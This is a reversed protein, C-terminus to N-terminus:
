ESRAAALMANWTGMLSSEGDWAEQMAETPEIPVLQYGEPVSPAPHLYLPKTYNEAKCVSPRQMSSHFEWREYQRLLFMKVEDTIVDSSTRTQHLWAVPEQEGLKNLVAQEIARAIRHSTSGDRNIASGRACERIILTIEEDTLIQNMGEQNM